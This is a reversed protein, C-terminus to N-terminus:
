TEGGFGQIPREEGGYTCCAGGMENKEIEETLVNRTPQRKEDCISCTVRMNKVFLVRSQAFEDGHSKFHHVLM